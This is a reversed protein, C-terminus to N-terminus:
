NRDPYYTALPSPTSSSLEEGDRQAISRPCKRVLVDFGTHLLNLSSPCLGKKVFETFLGVMEQVREALGKPNLAGGNIVVKIRKENLVKLSLTLGELATEEYGPHTGARFATANSALNMEVLILPGSMLALLIYSVPSTTGLLSMPM